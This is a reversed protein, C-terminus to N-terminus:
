NLNKAFDKYYVSSSIQSCSVDDVLIIRVYTGKKLYRGHCIANTIWVITIWFILLFTNMRHKVDNSIPITSRECCPRRITPRYIFM